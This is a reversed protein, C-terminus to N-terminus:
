YGSNPADTLVTQRTPPRGLLNRKAQAGHRRAFSRLAAAQKRLRAIPRDLPHRHHNNVTGGSSWARAKLYNIKRLIRLYESVPGDHNPDYKVVSRSGDPLIETYSAMKVLESETLNRDSPPRAAGRPLPM